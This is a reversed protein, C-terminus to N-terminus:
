VLHGIDPMVKLAIAIFLMSFAISATLIVLWEAAIMGTVAARSCGIAYLTDLEQKRLRISLLVILGLLLVTASTVILLSTRVFVEIKFVISMLDDIVLEPMLMQLTESAKYRSALITKSKESDPECIVSTLPLSDKEAHIHFSNINDETVEVYTTVNANGVVNGEENKLVNKSDSKLEDHGHAIGEIIWTTKLDTFIVDDDVTGTPELVGVVKMKLPYQAALSYLNVQDSIISDGTHKGLMKAANAGLVADGLMLPLSGQACSLGRFRYYDAVTGVITLKSCTHRAFLPYVHALGSGKVDEADKVSCYDEIDPRFYLGNMAMDFRHGKVGLVLPTTQARQELGAQYYAIMSRLSVPLCITIFLCFMLLISQWKYYLAYKLAMYFSTRM